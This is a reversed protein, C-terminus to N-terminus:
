ALIRSSCLTILLQHSHWTKHVQAVKIVDLMLTLPVGDKKLHVTIAIFAWHNPSTWADTASNLDGDYEQPITLTWRTIDYNAKSVHLMKSIWQCTCAFVLCVDHSVTSPSPIYYEPWGMKILSQFGQDKVVVFPHVNELVWRIIEARDFFVELTMLPDRNVSWMSPRLKQINNTHTHLRGKALGNLYLQSWHM